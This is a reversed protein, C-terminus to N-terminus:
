NIEEVEYSVFQGSLHEGDYHRAMAITRAKWEDEAEIPPCAKRYGLEEIIITLKFRRM